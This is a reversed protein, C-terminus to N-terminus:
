LRTGALALQRTRSGSERDDTASSVVAAGSTALNGTSRHCSCFPTATLEPETLRCSQRNVSTLPCPIRVPVPLVVVIRMRAVSTRGPAPVAVMVEEGIRDADPARDAEVPDPTPWSAHGPPSRCGWLARVTSVQTRKSLHRFGPASPTIIQDTRTHLYQDTRTHVSRIHGASSARGIAPLRARRTRRAM